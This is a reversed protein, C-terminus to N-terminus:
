WVGGGTSSDNDTDIAIVALSDDSGYLTNLEFRVSLEDGDLALALSVLDATNEMGAPYRQDGATPSLLGPTNAIPNFVGGGRSLLNMVTLPSLGVLGTDAGYDDYVYDRYILTGDCLETTGAVWSDRQCDVPMDPPPVPQNPTPSQPTSGPTQSVSDSSGGGGCATVLLALSAISAYQKKMM